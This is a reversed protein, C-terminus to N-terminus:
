SYNNYYIKRMKMSESILKNKDMIYCCPRIRFFTHFIAFKSLSYEIDTRLKIHNQTITEILKGGLFNIDM